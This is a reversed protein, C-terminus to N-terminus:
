TSTNLINLYIPMGTLYFMKLYFLKNFTFYVENVRLRLVAKSHIKGSCQWGEGIANANM